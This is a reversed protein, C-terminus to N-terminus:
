RARAMSLLSVKGTALLEPAIRPPDAEAKPKGQRDLWAQVDERRYKLPRRWHPLSLPFGHADELQIRRRLFADADPLGLMQAVATADVFIPEPIALHLTM